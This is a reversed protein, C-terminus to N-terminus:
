CFKRIQQPQGSSQSSAKITVKRAQPTNERALDDSTRGTYEAGKAHAM